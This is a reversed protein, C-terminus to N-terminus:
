ASEVLKVFARLAFLLKDCKDQLPGLADLADEADKQLRDVAAASAGSEIAEEVAHTADEAKQDAYFKADCADAYRRRVSDLKGEIDEM